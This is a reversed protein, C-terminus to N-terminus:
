LWWGLGQSSQFSSFTPRCPSVPATGHYTAPLEASTLSQRLTQIVVPGSSVVRYAAWGHIFQVQGQIVWWLKGSLVAQFPCAIISIVAKANSRRPLLRAQARQIARKIQCKSQQIGTSHSHVTNPTCKKGREGPAHRLRSLVSFGEEKICLLKEPLICCVM